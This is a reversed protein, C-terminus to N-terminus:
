LIWVNRRFLVRDFSIRSLKPALSSTKVQTNCKHFAELLIWLRNKNRFKHMTVLLKARSIRFARFLQCTTCWQRNWRVIVSPRMKSWAPCFNRRNNSDTLPRTDVKWITPVRTGSPIKIKRDVTSQPWKCHSLKTLTTSTLTRTTSSISETQTGTWPM